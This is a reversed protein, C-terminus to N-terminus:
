LREGPFNPDVVIYQRSFATRRSLSQKKNKLKGLPLGADLGVSLRIGSGDTTTKPTSDQANANISFISVLSLALVSIKISTKM